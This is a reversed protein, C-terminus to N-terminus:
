RTFENKFTWNWIKVSKAVSFWVFCFKVFFCFSFLDQFTKPKFNGKAVFLRHFTNYASVKMFILPFPYPWQLYWKNTSFFIRVPFRISNRWLSYNELNHGSRYFDIKVCIPRVEISRNAYQGERKRENAFFKRIFFYITTQTISTGYVKFWGVFM